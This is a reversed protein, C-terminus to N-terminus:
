DGVAADLQEYDTKCLQLIKDIIVEDAADFSKLKCIAPLVARVKDIGEDTMNLINIGYKDRLIDRFCDQPM